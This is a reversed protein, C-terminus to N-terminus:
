FTARLFDLLLEWLKLLPVSLAVAAAYQIIWAANTFGLRPSVLVNLVLLVALGLLAVIGLAICFPIFRPYQEVVPRGDLAIALSLSLLHLLASTGMSLFVANSLTLLPLIPYSAKKM